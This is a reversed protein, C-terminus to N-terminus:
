ADDEESILDSSAPWFPSNPGVFMWFEFRDLFEGEVKYTM